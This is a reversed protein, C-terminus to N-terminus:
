GARNSLENIFKNSVVKEEDIPLFEHCNFREGEDDMSSEANSCAAEEFNTERESAEDDSINGNM